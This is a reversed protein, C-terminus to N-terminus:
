LEKLIEIHYFFSNGITHQANDGDILVAMRYEKSEITTEAMKEGKPRSAM